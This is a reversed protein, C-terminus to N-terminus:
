FDTINVIRVGITGDTLYAMTEDKSLIAMETNGNWYNGAEILIRNEIDFNLIIIGYFRACLVLFSNDKSLAM